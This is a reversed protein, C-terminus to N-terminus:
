HGEEEISLGMLVRATKEATEGFARAVAARDDSNRPINTSFGRREIPFALNDMISLGIQIKEPTPPTYDAAMTGDDLLKENPNNM